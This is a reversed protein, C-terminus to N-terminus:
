FISNFLFKALEFLGVVLMGAVFVILMMAFCECLETHKREEIAYYEDINEFGETNM